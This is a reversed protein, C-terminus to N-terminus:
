RGIEVVVVVVFVVVVIYDAVHETRPCRCNGTEEVTKPVRESRESQFRRPITIIYRVVLCEAKIAVRDSRDHDSRSDNGFLINGITSPAHALRAVSDPYAGFPKQRELLRSRDISLQSRSRNIGLGKRM